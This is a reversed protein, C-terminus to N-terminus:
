KVKHLNCDDDYIYTPEKDRGKYLGFQGNKSYLTYIGYRHNKNGCVFYPSKEIIPIYSKIYYGREEKWNEVESVYDLGKKLVYYVSYKKDGIQVIKYTHEIVYRGLKCTYYSIGVVILILIPFLFASTFVALVAEPCVLIALALM